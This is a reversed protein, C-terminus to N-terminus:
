LSYINIIVQSLLNTLSVKPDYSRIKTLQQIFLAEAKDFTAKADPSM